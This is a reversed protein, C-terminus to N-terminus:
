LYFIMEYGYFISIILLSTSNLFPLTITLSSSSVIPLFLRLSLLSSSYSVSSSSFVLVFIYLILAFFFLLNSVTCIMCSLPYINWGFCNLVPPSTNILPRGSGNANIYNFGFTFKDM